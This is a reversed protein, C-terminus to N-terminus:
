IPDLHPGSTGTLGFFVNFSARGLGKKPDLEEPNWDIVEGRVPVRRNTLRCTGPQLPAETRYFPEPVRFEWETSLRGIESSSM